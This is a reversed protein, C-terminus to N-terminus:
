NFIFILSLTISSIVYLLSLISTIKLRMRLEKVNRAALQILDADTQETM